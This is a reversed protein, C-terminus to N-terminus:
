LFNILDFVKIYFHIILLFFLVFNQLRSIDLFLNVYEYILMVYLKLHFMLLLDIIIIHHYLVLHREERIALKFLVWVHIGFSLIANKKRRFRLWWIYCCSRLSILAGLNSSWILIYALSTLLCKSLFMCDTLLEIM